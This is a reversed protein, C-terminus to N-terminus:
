RRERTLHWHYAVLAAERRTLGPPDPPQTGGCCICTSRLHNVGGLVSHLACEQHIAGWRWGAGDIVPRTEFSEFPLVAEGCWLCADM